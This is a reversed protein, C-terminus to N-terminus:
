CCDWYFWAKDFNQNILDQYSIFFNVVGSDGFMINEDTDIQLLLLDDKQDKNYERPDGQTFYAYGGIKHGAGDFLNEIKERDSKNLTDNFEWFEKGDFTMSFRSDESGGFDIQKAFKLQHEQYIPSEEYLDEALFTFDTQFDEKVEEHFM